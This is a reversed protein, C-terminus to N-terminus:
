QTLLREDLPYIYSVDWCAIVNMMVDRALEGAEKVVKPTAAPIRLCNSGFLQAISKVEMKTKAESGIIVKLFRVLYALADRHIRPM